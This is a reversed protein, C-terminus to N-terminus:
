SACRRSSRSTSRRTVAASVRRRHEVVFSLGIAHKRPDIGHPAGDNPAIDPPFWQYVYVPQPELPLTSKPMWRNARTAAFRRRSRRARAPHPWRPSVLGHRVAVRRLILGIEAGADTTRVLVFDVCAIPMSHEIQAYLDDAPVDGVWHSPWFGRVGPARTRHCKWFCAGPIFSSIVAASTAPTGWLVGRPTGHAQGDDAATVEAGDVRGCHGRDAVVDDADVDVLALDVDSECPRHATRRARAAPSGRRLADRRTAQPEGGVHSVACPESTCKM